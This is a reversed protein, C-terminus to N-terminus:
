ASATSLIPLTMKNAGYKKWSAERQEELWWDHSPPVFRLNLIDHPNWERIKKWHRLRRDIEKVFDSRMLENMLMDVDVNSQEFVIDEQLFQLGSRTRRFGAISEGGLNNYTESLNTELRPIAFFLDKELQKKESPTFQDIPILSHERCGVCFFFVYDLLDEALGHSLPRSSACKSLSRLVSNKMSTFDPSQTPIKNEDSFMPTADKVEALKSNLEDMRARYDEANEKMLSYLTKRQEVHIQIMKREQEKLDEMMRDEDEERRATADNIEKEMRKCQEKREKRMVKVLQKQWGKEQEFDEEARKQDMHAAALIQEIQAEKQRMMQYHEQQIAKVHGMFEERRKKLREDDERAVRDTENAEAQLRVQMNNLDRAQDAINNLRRTTEESMHKEHSHRGDQLRIEADARIKEQELKKNAVDTQTRCETRTKELETARADARDRVDAELQAQERQKEAREALYQHVAQTGVLWFVM